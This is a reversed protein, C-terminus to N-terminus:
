KLSYKSSQGKPLAVKILAYRSDVGQEFSSKQGEADFTCTVTYIYHSNQFAGTFSKDPGLFAARLELEYM